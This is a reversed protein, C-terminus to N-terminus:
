LQRTSDMKQLLDVVLLEECKASSVLENIAAEMAKEISYDESRAIWHSTFELREGRYLHKLVQLVELVRVAADSGQDRLGHVLAVALAAHTRVYALRPPEDVPTFHQHTFHMLHRESIPRIYQGVLSGLERINDRFAQLGSSSNSSSERKSDDSGFTFLTSSTNHM